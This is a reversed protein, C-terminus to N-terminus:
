VDTLVFAHKYMPLYVTNLKLSNSLFVVTIYHMFTALHSKVPQGYAYMIM